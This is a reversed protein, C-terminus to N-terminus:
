KIIVKQSENLSFFVSPFGFRSPLINTVFDGDSNGIYGGVERTRIYRSYLADWEREYITMTELMRSEEQDM